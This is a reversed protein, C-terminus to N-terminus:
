KSSAETLYFERRDTGEKNMKGELNSSFGGWRLTEVARAEDRLLSACVLAAEGHGVSRSLDGLLVLQPSVSAAVTARAKLQATTPASSPAGPTEENVVGPALSVESGKSPGGRSGTTSVPRRSFSGASDVAGNDDVRSLEEAPAALLALTEVTVKFM